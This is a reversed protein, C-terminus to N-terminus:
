IDMTFNVKGEIIQTEKPKGIVQDILYKGAERDPSKLYVKTAPRGLEDMVLNGAKDKVYEKVWVGKALEAQAAVIDSWNKEIESVMEGRLKQPIDLPPVAATGVDLPLVETPVVACSVDPSSEPARIVDSDYEDTLPIINEM